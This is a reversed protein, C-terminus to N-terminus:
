EKRLQAMQESLDENATLDGYDFSLRLVREYKWAPAFGMHVYLDRIFDAGLTLSGSFSQPVKLPEYIVGSSTNVKAGFLKRPPDDIGLQLSTLLLKDRKVEYQCIFGRWCATHIMRVQLGHEAPDFLGTGDVEVLDFRTGEYVVRDPIQATM